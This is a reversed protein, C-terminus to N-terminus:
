HRKKVIGYDTWTVKNLINNKRLNANFELTEKTKYGRSHDLHVCIASFRIQKSKIGSQWLRDGMERDQGGYAMREDHGNVALIDKKWGSACHGNWSAKTPTISNFIGDLKWNTAVFRISKRDLMKGKSMLWLPSFCSQKEIDELTIAKSTSMPLKLYGSSLFYGPERYKFQMEVFDNRPVCDGDSFLLYDTKSAVIAKNLIESKRFGKDEHWVHELPYSLKPRLEELLEKTEKTSGDDAVILEFDKTTQQEYGWLVKKLWEPSNYTSIIVTMKM